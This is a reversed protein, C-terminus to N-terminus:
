TAFMGEHALKFTEFTLLTVKKQSFPMPKSGKRIRQPKYGGYLIYCETVIQPEVIVAIRHPKDCSFSHVHHEALFAGSKCNGRLNAM